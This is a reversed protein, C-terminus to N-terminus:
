GGAATPIGVSCEGVSHAGSDSNKRRLGEAAEGKVWDSSAFNKSWLVVVCKAAGLAEETVEDFSRGSPISLGV